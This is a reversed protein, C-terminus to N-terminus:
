KPVTASNTSNNELELLVLKCLREPDREGTRACEVVKRALLKRFAEERNSLGLAARSAEFAKAMAKVEDPQFVSKPLLGNRPIAAKLQQWLLNKRRSELKHLWHTLDHLLEHSKAVDDSHRRARIRWQQEAVLQRAKAIKADLARLELFSMTDGSMPVALGSQYRTPVTISLAILGTAGIIV